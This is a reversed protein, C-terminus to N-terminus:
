PEQRTRRDLVFRRLLEGLVAIVLSAGAAILLPLWLNHEFAAGGLYGLGSAYLSWVIAATADAPLFRSRWAMGLTGAAYTTATRGGPIFRAVVIIWPGNGQLEARAWELREQARRTRLLREALPRLGGHGLGYACNDGIMAGLVAALVVLAIQLHGSAALVSATVLVVEAPFLPLLADGACVAVILLYTLPSGTVHDALVDFM